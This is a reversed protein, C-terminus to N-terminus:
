PGPWIPRVNKRVNLSESSKLTWRVLYAFASFIWRVNARVWNRWRLVSRLPVTMRIKFKQPTFSHFYVHTPLKPSTTLRTCCEMSSQSCHFLETINKFEMLCRRVNEFLNQEGFLTTLSLHVSSKCFMLTPYKDTFCEVRKVPAKPNVM